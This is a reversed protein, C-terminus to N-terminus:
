GLAHSRNPLKVLDCLSKGKDVTHVAFLVLGRLPHARLETLANRIEDVGVPQPGPDERNLLLCLDVILDDEEPQSIRWNM